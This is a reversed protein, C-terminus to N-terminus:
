DDGIYINEWNIFSIIVATGKYIDIFHKFFAEPPSWATEMNILVSADENYIIIDKVVADWKTGWNNINWDISSQFNNPNPLFINFLEKYISKNNKLDKEINKTSEVKNLFDDLQNKDKFYISVESECWDPM